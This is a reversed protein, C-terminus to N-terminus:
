KSHMKKMRRHQKLVDTMDEEEADWGANDSITADESWNQLMQFLVFCFITVHFNFLSVLM